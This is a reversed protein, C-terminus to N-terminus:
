NNKSKLGLIEKAIRKCFEMDLADISPLYVKEGNEDMVSIDKSNFEPVENTIAGVFIYATLFTGLVSPHSGDAIFLEISPRTKIALEWASGVPVRNVHNELAAEGYVENITKQFQPVKKRAWTNYLYPKAGTQRVLETLLAAYKLLSDPSNIASMSNDQLVVVDFNGNKIIERSKLGREGNWHHYLFAGGATSKATILKTGTGESLLSVIHPLNNAYTYSNGVFLLKLTDQQASSFYTLFLLTLLALFRIPKKPKLKM